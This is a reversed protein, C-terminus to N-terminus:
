FLNEENSFSNDEVSEISTMMPEQPTEEDSMDSFSSFNDVFLNADLSRQHAICQEDSDSSKAFIKLVCCGMESEMTKDKFMFTIANYKEMESKIDESNQYDDKDVFRIFAVLETGSSCKYHVFKYKELNEEKRFDHLIFFGLGNKWSKLYKDSVNTTLHVDILRTGMLTKSECLTVEDVSIKKVEDWNVDKISAPIKGLLAHKVEKTKEQSYGSLPKVETPTEKKGFM